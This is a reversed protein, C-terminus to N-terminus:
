MWKGAGELEPKNGPLIKHLARRYEHLKAEEASTVTILKENQMLELQDLAMLLAQVAKLMWGAEFAELTEVLPENLRQYRTGAAQQRFRSIAAEYREAVEPSPKIGGHMATTPVVEPLKASYAKLQSTLGGVTELVQTTDM